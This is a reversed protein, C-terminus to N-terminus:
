IEPFFAMKDPDYIYVYNTCVPYIGFKYIQYPSELNEMGTSANGRVNLDFLLVEDRFFRFRDDSAQAAIAEGAAKTMEASQSPSLTNIDTGYSSGENLPNGLGYLLNCAKQIHSQARWANFGSYGFNLTAFGLIILILILPKKFKIFKRPSPIEESM